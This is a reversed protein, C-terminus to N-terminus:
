FFLRITRTLTKERDKPITPHIVYNIMYEADDTRGFLGFERLRYAGEPPAFEPELTATVQLHNTPVGPGEPSHPLYSFDAPLLEIRPDIPTVLGTAEASAQPRDDDWADLGKGVVLHQIGQVGPRNGMFAALLVRCRGVITNSVWGSDFILRGDRGSLRDRYMGNLSAGIREM